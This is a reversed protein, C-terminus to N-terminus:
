GAERDWHARDVADVIFVFLGVVLIIGLLAIQAEILLQPDNSSLDTWISMPQMYAAWNVGQVEAVVDVGNSYQSYAWQGGFCAFGLLWTWFAQTRRMLRIASILFFVAGAAFLGVNIWTANAAGTAQLSGQAAAVEGDVQAHGITPAEVGTILGAAGLASVACVLVLALLVAIAPLRLIVAM